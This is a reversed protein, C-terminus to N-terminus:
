GVQPLRSPCLSPISSLPLYSPFQLVKLLLPSYQALISCSPVAFFPLFPGPFHDFFLFPCVLSPLHPRLDLLPTPIFRCSSASPPSPLRPALADRVRRLLPRPPLRRPPAHPPRHPPRRGPSQPPPVALPHERGLRPLSSSFPSSVFQDQSAFFDSPSSPSPSLFFTALSPSAPSPPPLAQGHASESSSWPAGHLLDFSPAMWIHGDATKREGAGREGERGGYRGGEM